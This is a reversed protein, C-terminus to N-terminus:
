CGPVLFQLKGMNKVSLPLHLAFCCQSSVQVGILAHSATFDCVFSGSNHCKEKGRMDLVEEM